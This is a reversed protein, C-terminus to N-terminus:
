QVPEGSPADGAPRGRVASDVDRLALVGFVGGHADMLLYEAAPTARIAVLLQDGTIDLPLCLGQEITRAVTSTPVWPRRGGPTAEVAAESVVGQPRERSDVTVISRAGAEAARRVAEALPLDGPVTLVSRALDRAVVTDLLTRMRASELEHSSASWLFLALAVAIFYDVLRPPAGFLPERLSPYFMILVAVGRGAWGATRSGRARSGGLRWGLARVMRGGDLPPSPILDLLGLVLNAFVLAEVLLRLVGDPTAALAALSAAGLVLSAVPGAVATWFERSPTEAEGAVVTRGGVINLTISEVSHGFHRAVLAHAGEHVLVCAYVIVAMVAGIAFRGSGLGPQAQEVRASMAVSLVVVVLFWSSSVLVEIGGVSGLRLTGAAREAHRTEPM